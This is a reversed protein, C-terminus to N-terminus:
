EDLALDPTDFFFVQRIQTQLPDLGLARITSLQAAEPVTLKLEVSDVEKILAVLKQLDEDSRATRTTTTVHNVDFLIGSPEPMTGIPRHTTIALPRDDARPQPPASRTRRLHKPEGSRRSRRGSYASAHRRSRRPSAPRARGRSRRTPHRCAEARGNAPRSTRHM